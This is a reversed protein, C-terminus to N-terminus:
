HSFIMNKKEEWISESCEGVVSSSNYIFILPWPYGNVWEVVLRNINIGPTRHPYRDRMRHLKEFENSMYLSHAASIDVSHHSSTIVHSFHSFYVTPHTEIGATGRQEGYVYTIQLYTHFTYRSLPSKARASAIALSLFYPSPLLTSFSLFINCIWPHLHM